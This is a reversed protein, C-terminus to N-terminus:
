HQRTKDGIATLLNRCKAFNKSLIETENNMKESRENIMKFWKLM